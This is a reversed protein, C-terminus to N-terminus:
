TVSQLMKDRDKTWKRRWQEAKERMRENAKGGDEKNRERKNIWQNDRMYWNHIKKETKERMWESIWKSFRERKKVWENVEERKRTKRKREDMLKRKIEKMCRNKGERKEKREKEWKSRWEIKKKGGNQRHRSANAVRNQSLSILNWDLSARRCKHREWWM